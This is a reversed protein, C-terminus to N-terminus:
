EYCVRVICKIFDMRVRILVNVSLIRSDLGVIWVGVEGLILVDVGVDVGIVVIRVSQERSSPRM